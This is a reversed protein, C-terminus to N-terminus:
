PTPPLYKMAREWLRVYAEASYFLPKLDAESVGVNKLDMIFDPYLGIHAFGHENIDWTRTGLQSKSAMRTNLVPVYFPYVVRQNQLGKQTGLIKGDCAEDGFRSRPQSNFGNFDSGFAVATLGNDTGGARRVARVAHLYAQAFTKVSNDCDNVVTSVASAGVEGITGQRTIVSILAGAAALSDVQWQVKNAEYRKDQGEGPIDPSLAVFGVHSTVMPYSRERLLRMADRFTNQGMHDVDVMMHLRMMDRLLFGGAPTLGKRNCHGGSPYPPPSFGVALMAAIAPDLTATLRYRVGSASCDELDLHKGNWIFNAAAPVPSAVATGGFSNNFVHVPLIQRVGQAYLAELNQRLSITDTCNATESCGFLGPVETGLVVALKGGRMAARAEAPSRVIRYWGRGAGGAQGDVYQEFAKAADLQVQVAQMDGCQPNLNGKLREVAGCLVPNNVAYMVMLRLGGDVARKLWTEYVQQHTFTTSRPWGEFGPYGSTNHGPLLGGEGQTKGFVDLIGNPGHVGDELATAPPGWAKGSLMRGGFGLNSMQHVHLDAYGIISTMQATEEAWSPGMNPDKPTAFVVQETSPDPFYYNGEANRFYTSLGYGYSQSTYPQGRQPFLTDVFEPTTLLGTGDPLVADGTLKIQSGYTIWRAIRYGVANPAPQWKLWVNGYGSIAVLDTAAVAPAADPASAASIM